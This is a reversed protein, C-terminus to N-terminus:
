HKFKWAMLLACAGVGVATLIYKTNATLRCSAAKEGSDPLKPDTLPENPHHNERSSPSLILTTAPASPALTIEKAPEGNVQLLPTMTQGGRNLISPGEAVYGVNEQVDEMNLSPAPFEYHNEEPKSHDIGNEQCTPASREAESIELGEGSYTEPEHCITRSEHNQPQVSVLQGPKSFCVDDESEFSDENSM